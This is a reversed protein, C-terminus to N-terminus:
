VRASSCVADCVAEVVREVDEDSLAASIPISVTRTSVSEANPFSGPTWGYKERYYRQLHLAPFHWGIGVGKSKLEAILQPRDFRLTTWDFWLTYLHKAHFGSVDPELSVPPVDLGRIDGFAENYRSWIATRRSQTREIRSLQHIGLSAQLDTMNYKHGAYLLEYVGAGNNTSYRKWADNDLGHLGRM